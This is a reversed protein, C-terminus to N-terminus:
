ERVEETKPNYLTNLESLMKELEKLNILRKGILNKDNQLKKVEVITCNKLTKNKSLKVSLTAIESLVKEYELNLAKMINAAKDIFETQEKSISFEPNANKERFLNGVSHFPVTLFANEQLEIKAAEPVKDYNENVLYEKIDNEWGFTKVFDNLMAFLANNLVAVKTDVNYTLGNKNPSVKENDPITINIQNEANQWEASVLVNAQPERNKQIRDVLKDAKKIQAEVSKPNFRDTLLINFFPSLDNVVNDYRNQAIQLVYSGQGWMYKEEQTLKSVDSVEFRTDISKIIDKKLALVDACNEATVEGIDSFRKEYVAVDPSNQYLAKQMLLLGKVAIVDSNNIIAEANNLSKDFIAVFEATQEETAPEVKVVPAKEVRAPKEKKSFKEEVAASKEKMKASINQFFNTKKEVVQEEAQELTPEEEVVKEEKLSNMKEKWKSSVNQFFNSKEEVTMEEEVSENEANSSNMKEKMKSTFNKFVNSKKEIVPEESQVPEEIQEIVEEQPEEQPVVVEEQSQNQEITPEEEVLPKEEIVPREEISPKQEVAPQVEQEIIAPTKVEQTKEEVTPKFEISKTGGEFFTVPRDQIIYKGQSAEAVNSIQLLIVMASLSLLIKKM